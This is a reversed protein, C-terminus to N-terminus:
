YPTDASMADSSGLEAAVGDVGFSEGGKTTAEALKKPNQAGAAALASEARKKGDDLIQEYTKVSARFKVDPANSLWQIIQDDSEHLRAKSSKPIAVKYNTRGDKQFRTILIDDGDMVNTFDEGYEDENNRLDMLGTIVSKPLEVLQVGAAEDTRDIVRAYGRERPLYQKALEKDAANGTDFLAGAKECAPCRGGNARKPCNFVFSKGSNAWNNIWHQHVVVVFENEGKLAPLFRLLNSGEKFKYFKTRSGGGGYSLATQVKQAAEKTFSEGVLDLIGANITAIESM